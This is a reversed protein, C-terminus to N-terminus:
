ITERSKLRKKLKVLTEDLIQKARVISIHHRKAVQELTMPGHKNVAILTCNNDEEYDLHLRCETQRCAINSRLCLRACERLPKEEIDKM